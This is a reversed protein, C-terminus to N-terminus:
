GCVSLTFQVASTSFSSGHWKCTNRYLVGCSRRQVGAVLGASVLEACRTNGFPWRMAIM